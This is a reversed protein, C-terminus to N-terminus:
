MKIEPSNRRRCWQPFRFGNFIGTNYTVKKELIDGHAMLGLVRGLYFVSAPVSIDVFEQEFSSNFVNQKGFPVKFKGWRIKQDKAYEYDFYAEYLTVNSDENNTSGELAFVYKLNKSWLWGDFYLRMREWEFASVNNQRVKGESVPVTRNREQRDIGVYRFQTRLRTKLYFADDVTRIFFGRDYGAQLTPQYIEDRFQEDSLIEEVMRRVDQIRAQDLRKEELSSLQRRLVDVEKEMQELRQELTSPSATPIPSNGALVRDLKAYSQGGCTM